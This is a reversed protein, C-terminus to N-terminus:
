FFSWCKMPNSIRHQKVIVGQDISEKVGVEVGILSILDEYISTWLLFLTVLESTDVVQFFFITLNKKLRTSMQACDVEARQNYLLKGVWIIWTLFHCEENVLKKILLRFEVKTHFAGYSCLDFQLEFTWQIWLCNQSAIIQITVQFNLLMSDPQSFVVSQYDGGERCAELGKNRYNCFYYIKAFHLCSPLHRLLQSTVNVPLFSSFSFSYTVTNQHLLFKHEFSFYPWLSSKYALASRGLSVVQTSEKCLSWM